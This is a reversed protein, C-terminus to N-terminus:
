IEPVLLSLIPWRDIHRWIWCGEHIVVLDQAKRCRVVCL